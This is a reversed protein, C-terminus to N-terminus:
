NAGCGFNACSVIITAENSCYENDDLSLGSWTWPTFTPRYIMDVCIICQLPLMNGTQSGWWMLRTIAMMDSLVKSRYLCTKEIDRYLLLFVLRDLIDVYTCCFDPFAANKNSYSVWLARADHLDILPGVKIYIAIVM